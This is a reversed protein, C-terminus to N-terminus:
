AAARAGADNVPAANQADGQAALALSALVCSAIRVEMAEHPSGLVVPAKAGLVLGAALGGAVAIMTRSVMTAAEM